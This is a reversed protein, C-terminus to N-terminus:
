ILLFYIQVRPKLHFCLQVSCEGVSLLPGSNVIIVASDVMNMYTTKTFMNQVNSTENFVVKLHANMRWNIKEQFLRQRLNGKPLSLFRSCKLKRRRPRTAFRHLTFRFVKYWIITMSLWDSFSFIFRSKALFYIGKPYTWWNSRANIMFSQRMDSADSGCTKM